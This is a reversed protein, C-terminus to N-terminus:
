INIAPIIDKLILNKSQMKKLIIEILKYSM